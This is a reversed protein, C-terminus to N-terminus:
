KNIECGKKGKVSEFSLDEGSVYLEGIFSVCLSHIRSSFENDRGWFLKRAGFLKWIIDKIKGTLELQKLIKCLTM